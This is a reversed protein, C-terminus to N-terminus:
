GGFELFLLLLLLLLLVCVWLFYVDFEIKKREWM